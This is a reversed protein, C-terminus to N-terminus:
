PTAGGLIGEARTAHASRRRFIRFSGSATSCVDGADDRVTSEAFGVGTGVRIASGEVYLLDRVLVLDIFHVALSITAIAPVEGTRSRVAAGQAIDHLYSLIAGNIAPTSAGGRHHEAVRLELRSRGDAAALLRAGAWHMWPLANWTDVFSTMAPTPQSRM